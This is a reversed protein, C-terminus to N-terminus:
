QNMVIASDTVFGKIKDGPKIQRAKSYITRNNDFMASIKCTNQGKSYFRIAATHNRKINAAAATGQEHEVRAAGIIFSSNNRVVVTVLTARLAIQYGVVFISGALVIFAIVITLFKKM